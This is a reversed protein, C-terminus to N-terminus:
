IPFFHIFSHFLSYHSFLSVQDSLTTDYRVRGDKGVLSTALMKRLIEEPVPNGLASLALGLDIQSLYGDGRQDFRSFIGVM